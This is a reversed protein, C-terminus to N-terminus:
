QAAELEIILSEVSEADVVYSSPYHHDSKHARELLGRLDAVVAARVLRGAMAATEALEARTADLESLLETLPDASSRLRYDCQYDVQSADLTFGDDGPHRVDCENAHGLTLLRGWQVQEVSESWGDGADDRYCELSDEAGSRADDATSHESFGDEPDYSYFDSHARIEAEREPTLRSM